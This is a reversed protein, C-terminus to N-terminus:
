KAESRVSYTKIDKIASMISNSNAVFDNLTSQNKQEERPKFPPVKLLSSPKQNPPPNKLPM